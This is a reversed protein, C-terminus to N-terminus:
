RLIIMNLMFNSITKQLLELILEKLEKTNEMGYLLDMIEAANIWFTKYNKIRDVIKNIFGNGDYNGGFEWNQAYLIVDVDESLAYVVAREFNTIGHSNLLYINPINNENNSLLGEVIMAMGTGHNTRAPRNGRKTPSLNYRELFQKPYRNVIQLKSGLREILASSNEFGNDLIAVKLQSLNRNFIPDRNDTHIGFQEKLQGRNLLEFDAYATSQIFLLLYIINRM